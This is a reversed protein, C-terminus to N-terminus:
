YYYQLQNIDRLHQLHHLKGGSCPARCWDQHAFGTVRRIHSFTLVRRELPVVSQANAPRESSHLPERYVPFTDGIELGWRFGKHIRVESRPESDVLGLVGGQDDQVHASAVLSFIPASHLVVLPVFAWDDADAEVNLTLLDEWIQNWYIASRCGRIGLPTKYEHFPSRWTASRSCNMTSCCQPLFGKLSVLWSWTLSRTFRIPFFRSCFCHM